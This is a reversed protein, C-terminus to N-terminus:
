RKLSVWPGRGKGSWASARRCVGPVGVLSSTVWVQMSAWLISESRLGSFAALNLSTACNRASPNFFGLLSHRPTSECQTSAAFVGLVLPLITPSRRNSPCLSSLCLAVLRTHTFRHDLGLLGSLLEIFGEFAM